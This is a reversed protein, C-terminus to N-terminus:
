HDIELLGQWHPESAPGPDCLACIVFRPVQTPGSVTTWARKKLPHLTGGLSLVQEADWLSDHCFQPCLGPRRVRLIVEGHPM